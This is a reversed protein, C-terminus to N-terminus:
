GMAAYVSFLGGFWSSGITKREREGQKYREKKQKRKKIM